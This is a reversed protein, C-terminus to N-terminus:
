RTHFVLGRSLHIWSLAAQREVLGSAARRDGGHLRLIHSAPRAEPDAAPTSSTSLHRSIISYLRHAGELSSPGRARSASSVGPQLALMLSTIICM